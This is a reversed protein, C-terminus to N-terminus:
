KAATRKLQKSILGTIMLLAFAATATAAGFYLVARYNIADAIFGMSVSGIMGGLFLSNMYVATARGPRDPAFSQVFTVSVGAFLGYYIGELVAIAIMSELTSVRTFLLMSSVALLASICLIKRFGLKEALKASIFIVIVEFACKVSLALGPAYEPLHIEKIFYLPMVSIFLSNTVVFFLCVTGAFLLGWNISTSNSADTNKRHSRFSAPVTLHWVLLWAFGLTAATLFASMFGFSAIITFSLAPGIMWAFSVSTRLWSNMMNTNLGLRDAQLRGYAFTTGSGINALSMLPIALALFVAFSRVQSLILSLAIFSLVALLILYRAPMGEDLKEGAWRNTLLTLPMVTGSYLGIQWPAAGLGEVIFLALIPIIMSICISNFLLLVVAMLMPKPPLATLVAGAIM